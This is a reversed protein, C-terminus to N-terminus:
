DTLGFLRVFVCSINVCKIPAIEVCNLVKLQRQQRSDIRRSRSREVSNEIRFANPNNKFGNERVVDAICDMWWISLSRLVM